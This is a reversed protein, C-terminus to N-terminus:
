ILFLQGCGCIMVVNLNKIVFRLGELGEQYDVELGVLYQFSMLDVVLGVGDCEIVIDDDVIDEDFIFGYQFGLCGGGIVFVCLKLCFNGEEDILMKVKNVVGLIFFLFMFIFIEISM